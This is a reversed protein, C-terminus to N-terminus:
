TLASEIKGENRAIERGKAAGGGGPTELLLTLDNKM